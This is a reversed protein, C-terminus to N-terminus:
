YITRTTQAYRILPSLLDCYFVCSVHPSTQLHFYSVLIRAPKPAHPDSYIAQIAAEKTTKSCWWSGYAVFFLQEKTFNGLGPLLADPSADDRKKWAHFAAALGGADAINEGLTLRGNVHLPKSDPDPGPVTFNGYQDVFCQARTEFAEITKDDWWSTYNGSQDYHRGTSDFAELRTLLYLRVLLLSIRPFCKGHSLEHGSVAGFAGYALYMPASAGYFVPPQMIGAPFVIENGPPNYYANVTPATMAWEDRNTPKGLKAWEQQVSFRAMLLSNEFFTENSIELDKYYDKVDDPDTLNPSKTPYGIKQVINAVKKTGLQRVQPTMWQTEDLTFIFREKIDSVIQDGLKKSEESFSDLVYFRSLIWGLGHDIERICKRWREEVAKSDKGSLRNEFERLPALKPDEISSAYTQITKWKLFFQITHRPTEKLIKSLDKMYSPSGVILRDTSFDEPALTTIIENFYVEPLLSHTEKISLSNYYQTVDEMTQTDPTSNALKTEFEAIDSAIKSLENIRDEGQVNIYSGLVQRL